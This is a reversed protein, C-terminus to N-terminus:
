QHKNTRLPPSLLYRARYTTRDMILLTSDYRVRLDSEDIDGLAVRAIGDRVVIPDENKIREFGGDVVDSDFYGAELPKLPSIDFYEGIISDVQSPDFEFDASGVFCDGHLCLCFFDAGLARITRAHEVRVL